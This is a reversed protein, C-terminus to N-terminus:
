EIPEALARMDAAGLPGDIGDAVGGGGGGAGHLVGLAPEPEPTDGAFDNYSM